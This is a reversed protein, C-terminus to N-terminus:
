YQERQGSPTDKETRQQERAGATQTRRDSIMASESMARDLEMGGHLLQQDKERTEISGARRARPNRIMAIMMRVRVGDIIHRTRAVTTEPPRMQAPEVLPFRGAHLLPTRIQDM